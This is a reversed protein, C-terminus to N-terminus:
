EGSLRVVHWRGNRKIFDRNISWRESEAGYEKYDGLYSDWGELGIITSGSSKVRVRNKQKTGLPDQTYTFVGPYFYYVKRRGNRGLDAQYDFGLWDKNGAPVFTERFIRKDEETIVLNNEEDRLKQTRELLWQDKLDWVAPNGRSIVMHDFPLIAHKRTTVPLRERIAGTDISFSAYTSGPALISRGNKLNLQQAVGVACDCLVSENPLPDNSTLSPSKAILFCGLPLADREFKERFDMSQWPLAYRIAQTSLVTSEAKEITKPDVAPVYGAIVDRVGISETAYWGELFDLEEAYNYFCEGTRLDTYQLNAPISGCPTVRFKAAELIRKQFYPFSADGPAFWQYTMGVPFGTGRGDWGLTRGNENLLTFPKGALADVVAKTQTTSNLLGADRQHILYALSMLWPLHQQAITAYVLDPVEHQSGGRAPADEIRGLDNYREHGEEVWAKTAENCGASGCAHIWPTGPDFYTRRNGNFVSGGIDPNLRTNWSDLFYGRVTKAIEDRRPSQTNNHKVWDVMSYSLSRDEHGSIPHVFVNVKVPFAEDRTWTVPGRIYSGIKLVLNTQASVAFKSGLAGDGRIPFVGYKEEGFIPPLVITGDVFIKERNKILYIGVAPILVDSLLEQTTRVGGDILEAQGFQDDRVRFLLPQEGNALGFKVPDVVIRVGDRPFEQGEKTAVTVRVTIGTDSTAVQQASIIAGPDQMTLVPESSATAVPTPPTAAPKPTAMEVTGASPTAGQKNEAPKITIARPACASVVFAFAM